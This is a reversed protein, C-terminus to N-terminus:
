NNASQPSRGVLAQAVGIASFSQIEKGTYAYATYGVKDMDIEGFRTIIKRSELLQKDIGKLVIEQLENVSSEMYIKLPKYNKIEIKQIKM